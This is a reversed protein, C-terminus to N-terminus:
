CLQTFVEQLVDQAEQKDRLKNFAHNHLIFKYRDYIETYAATDGSRLLDLLDGDSLAELVAM